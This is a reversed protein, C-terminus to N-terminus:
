ISDLEKDAQSLKEDNKKKDEEMKRVIAKIM